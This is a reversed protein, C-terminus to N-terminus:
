LAPSLSALLEEFNIPKYDTQEVSVCLHRATPCPKHHLHGHINQRFRLGLGSRDSLDLPLHTFVLKVDEFTKWLSISSFTGALHASAPNDHNGLILHKRGKLKKLIKWGDGNYVDGLHYVTDGDGIQDNWNDALCEDMEAVTQFGRAAKGGAAEAGIFSSDGFHTDSIVWQTM